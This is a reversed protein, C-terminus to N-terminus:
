KGLSFLDKIIQELERNIAPTGDLRSWEKVRRDRLPRACIGFFWPSDAPQFEDLM